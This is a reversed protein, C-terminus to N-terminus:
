GLALFINGLGKLHEPRFKNNLSTIIEFYEGDHFALAWDSPNQSKENKNLIFSAKDSPLHAIKIMETSFLDTAVKINAPNKNKNKEKLDMEFLGKKLGTCIEQLLFLITDRGPALLQINKEHAQHCVNILAQKNIKKDLKSVLIATSFGSSASASAILGITKPNDQVMKESKSALNNQRCFSWATKDLCLIGSCGRLISLIAIEPTPQNLTSSTCLIISHDPVKSYLKSFNM